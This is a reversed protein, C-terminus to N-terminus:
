LSRRGRRAATPRRSCAACRTTRGSRAPPRSTSSTRSRDSPHRHPRDDAHRRPGHAAVDERRRDVQLRRRRHVLQPLHEVRRHRGLRHGPEVARRGRRRYDDIRRQRVGTRWTQGLDDTKWLGGCCSRRTSGGAAGDQRRRRRRDDPRQRQDPRDVVVIMAKYPSAEALKVHADYAKVHSEADGKGPSQAVMQPRSWIVLAAVAAVLGLANKTRM